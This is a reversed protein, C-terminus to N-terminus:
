CPLHSAPTSLTQRAYMRPSPLKGSRAAPVSVASNILSHVARRLGFPSACLLKRPRVTPEVHTPPDVAMAAAAAKLDTAPLPHSSPAAVVPGQERVGMCPARKAALRARISSIVLPAALPARPPFPDDPPMPSHDAGLVSRAASPFLPLGDGVGGSTVSQRGSVSHKNQASILKGFSTM